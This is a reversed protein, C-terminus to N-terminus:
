LDLGGIKGSRWRSHWASHLFSTCYFYDQSISSIDKFAVVFRGEWVATWRLRSRTHPGEEASNEKKLVKKAEM